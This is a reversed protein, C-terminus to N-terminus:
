GKYNTKNIEDVISDFLVKEGRSIIFGIQDKKFLPWKEAIYGVDSYKLKMMRQFMSYDMRNYCFKYLIDLEKYSM